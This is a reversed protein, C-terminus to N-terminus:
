TRGQQNFVGSGGVWIWPSSGGLMGNMMVGFAYAEAQIGAYDIRTYPPGFNVLQVAGGWSSQDWLTVDWEGVSGTTLGTPATTITQNSSQGYNFSLTINVKFPGSIMFDPYFREIAKNTGPVGIKFYKSQVTALVPSAVTGDYAIATTTGSVYDWQYVQGSTSSGVYAVYPDPDTPADLLCMSAIGPTTQLVTWAQLRLDYCLIVNPTSSSSCYGLHLRNNYVCAWTLNWNQNLPFGPVFEDNLIWPEIKTSIIQPNTQGDFSYYGLHGLFFVVGDYSVMSMGSVIGDQFPIDQLYFTSYGTGYLVSIGKNLAIVLTATAGSGQACLGTVPNSMNFERTASLTEYSIQDGQPGTGTGFINNPILPVGGFWLVGNVWACWSANVVSAWGAPTYLNRGDFIYPGGVGTCIVIVDTLGAYYSQTTSTTGNGTCSPDSFRVWSVTQVTSGGVSGLNTPAGTAGISYLSGNFVGLLFQNSVQAAGAVLQFYRQIFLPHTGATVSANYPQMGNRMQFGGDPRLYGNTAITLENDAVLQPAAKLNLGGSFGFFGFELSDPVGTQLKGYKQLPV